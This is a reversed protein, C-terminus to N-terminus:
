ALQEPSAVGPQYVEWVVGASGDAGRSRSIKSLNWGPPPDVLAAKEPKQVVTERVIQGRSKTASASAIEFGPLVSVPGLKGRKAARKLVGQVGSKSIGLAKAIVRNSEGRQYRAVIDACVADPIPTLIM